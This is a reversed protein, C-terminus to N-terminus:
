PIHRGIRSLQGTGSRSAPPANNDNDRDKGKGQDRDQDQDADEADDAQDPRDDVDTDNNMDDPADVDEQDVAGDNDQDEPDDVRAQGTPAEPEQVRVVEGQVQTAIGHPRALTPKATAPSPTGPAQGALLSPLALAIVVGLLKQLM